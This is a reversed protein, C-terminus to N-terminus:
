NRNIIRKGEEIYRCTQRYEYGIEEAVQNLNKGELYRKRITDKHQWKKLRRMAKRLHSRLEKLEDSAKKYSAEADIAAALISEMKQKDGNGGPIGSIKVSTDTAREKLSRMAREKRKVEKDKETIAEFDIM